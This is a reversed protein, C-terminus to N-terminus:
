LCLETLHAAAARQRASPHRPAPCPAVRPLHVARRRPATENLGPAALAACSHSPLVIFRTPLCRGRSSAGCFRALPRYSVLLRLRSDLVAAANDVSCTGLTRTTLKGERASGLRCRSCSSSDQLRKLVRERLAERLWGAMRRAHTQAAAVAYLATLHWRCAMASVCQDDFATSADRCM